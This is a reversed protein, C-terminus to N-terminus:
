RRPRPRSPEPSSGFLPGLGSGHRAIITEEFFPEGILTNWRERQPPDLLDLAAALGDAHARLAAERRDEAARSSSGPGTRRGAPQPPSLAEWAARNDAVVEEVAIKQTVTLELAEAVTPDALARAGQVQWAIQQLRRHQAVTLGRELLRAGNGALQEYRERRADPTLAAAEEPDFAFAEYLTQPDLQERRVGLEDRVPPHTLLRVREGVRRLTDGAELEDLIATIQQRAQEIEVADEARSGQMESFDEYYTMAASLLRRREDGALPNDVLDEAAFRTLLDVVERAQQYSREAEASRLREAAYATAVRHNAGAVLITTVLLGVAALALVGVGVAVGYRHRRVWRALRQRPTPRRALIPQDDLFRRLDAALEDASLYRDAADKAMAKQLIVDLEAPVGPEVGRASPPDHHNIAKLMEVQNPGMVAPRLTLLEFLTAGLAYLDTRQDLLVARGGAQEPSMYRLTGLIDGPRTLGDGAADSQLQALGFDAIWLKGGTDLLLNGPKIDRHIVGMQHAYALGDAAQVGLTAVTRYFDRRQDSRLSALSSSPMDAPDTPAPAAALERIVEALSQGDILQMAYFHVSRECGVAHVPVVHPHHLQAAALAENRFRQAQRPDLAAALPLVKLAVRRGLSVQEAEYVVGMGGRGIQRILRFDGLTKDPTADISTSEPTHVRPPTAAPDLTAVASEAQELHDLCLALDSAIDPHRALFDDRAPPHGAEADALYGRVAEVLRPPATDFDIKTPDNNM